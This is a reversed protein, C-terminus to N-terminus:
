PQERLLDAVAQRDVKGSQTLPLHPLALTRTPLLFRDVHPRLQKRVSETVDVAAPADDSAVAVAIAQGFEPHDVGVACASGHLTLLQGTATEVETIHQAIAREVDEPLIKYGGSNIAGDARGHIRLIGDTVSGLDTTAFTGPEPFARTSDVNRYGRAVMPGSIHVPGPSHESNVTIRAGPLPIGDYAVGGSTESSGYTTLMRAGANRVKRLTEANAAAGGVLIAAYENLANLGDPDALLRELQAPVLSTYLCEDPHAERLQATDTAFGAATFPKNEQLHTAVTPTFGAALSRLIVQLGAIHHPPLALLWPGPASDEGFTDRVHQATAAASARLNEASLMAGKPTGTSGSTCAILTGPDIDQGVRMSQALEANAREQAPTNAVPLPLLSRQGDMMAQLAALFEAIDRPDATVAELPISM